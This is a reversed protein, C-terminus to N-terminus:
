LILYEDAEELTTECTLRELAGRIDEDTVDGSATGSVFVFGSGALMDLRCYTGNEKWVLREDTKEIVEVTGSSVLEEGREWEQLSSLRGEMVQKKDKLIQFHGNKKKLDYGGDTKVTVKVNEGAANRFVYSRVSEFGCACGTLVCMVILLAAAPLIWKKM